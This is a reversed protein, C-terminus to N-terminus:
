RKMEMYPLVRFGNKKYVNIARENEEEVELRFICDTYKKTIFDFFLSGLGQARFNEKIYLDEIWICPKGFETSFSKAIMAYGQIESANEFIYGELYPSDNICNEIDNSFIEESGNSLVAPSRYFVRMMELVEPKDKINMM